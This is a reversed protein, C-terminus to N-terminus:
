MMGYMMGSFIIKQSIVLLDRGEIPTRQRRAAEVIMSALDQGPVIEPLGEVGIVEYRLPM